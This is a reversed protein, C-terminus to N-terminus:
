IIYLKFPYSTIKAEPDGLLFANKSFNPIGKLISTHGTSSDKGECRFPISIGSYM